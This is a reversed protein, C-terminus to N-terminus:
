NWISMGYGPLSQRWRLEFEAIMRSRLADVRLQRAERCEGAADCRTAQSWKLERLEQARASVISRDRETVERGDRDTRISGAARDSELMSRLEHCMRYEARLEMLAFSPTRSTSELAEIRRAVDAAHRELARLETAVIEGHHRDVERDHGQAAVLAGTPAPPASRGVLKHRDRMFRQLRERLSEPPPAVAALRSAM